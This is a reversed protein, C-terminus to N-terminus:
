LLQQKNRPLVDVKGLLYYTNMHLKLLLIAGAFIGHDEIEDKIYLPKFGISIARHSTVCFRCNHQTLQSTNGVCLITYHLFNPVIDM